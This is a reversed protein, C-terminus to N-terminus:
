PRRARAPGGPPRTPRRGLDERFRARAAPAQRGQPYGRCASLNSVSDQRPGRRLSEEDTTARLQLLETAPERAGARPVAGDDREHAFRPDALRARREGEGLARPVFPGDDRDSRARFPLPGRREERPRLREARDHPREAVAGGCRAAPGPRPVSAHNTGSSVALAGAGASSARSSRSRRWWETVWSSSRAVARGPEARRPGSGVDLAGSTRTM